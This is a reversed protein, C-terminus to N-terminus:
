RALSLPVAGTATNNHVDRTGYLGTGLSSQAPQMDELSHVTREM